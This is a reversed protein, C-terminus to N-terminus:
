MIGKEGVMESGLQLICSRSPFVCGEGVSVVQLSVASKSFINQIDRSFINQIYHIELARSLDDKEVLIIERKEMFETTPVM